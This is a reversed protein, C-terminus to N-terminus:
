REKWWIGRWRGKVIKYAKSRSMGILTAIDNLGLGRRALDACVQTLEARSREVAKRAAAHLAVGTNVRGLVQKPLGSLTPRLEVHPKVGLALRLQRLTGKITRGRVVVTERTGRWTGTWIGGPMRKLQVRYTKM